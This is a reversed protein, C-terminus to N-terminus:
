IPDKVRFDFENALIGGDEIVAIRFEDNVQVRIKNLSYNHALFSFIRRFATRTINVGRIDLEVLSYNNCLSEVLFIIETDGINVSDSIDLKKIGHYQYISEVFKGFSRDSFYNGSLELIIKAEIDEGLMLNNVKNFLSSMANLGVDGMEIRNLMLSYFPLQHLLKPFFLQKFRVFFARSLSDVGEDDIANDSLNLHLISNYKAEEQKLLSSISFVGKSTLYNQSLDLKQIVCAVKIQECLGSIDNDTLKCNVLSLIQLKSHAPLANIFYIFMNDKLELNDLRVENCNLDQFYEFLDINIKPYEELYCKFCVQNNITNKWEPGSEDYLFQVVREKSALAFCREKGTETHYMMSKSLTVIKKAVTSSETRYWYLKFGELVVWRPHFNNTDRIRKMLYGYKIAEGNSIEKPKIFNLTKSSSHKYDRNTIPVTPLDEFKNTSDTMQYFMSREEYYIPIEEESSSSSSSSFIPKKTSSPVVSLIRTREKDSIAATASAIAPISHKRSLPRFQLDSVQFDSLVTEINETEATFEHILTQKKRHRTIILNSTSIMNPISKFEYEIPAVPVKIISAKTRKAYRLNESQQLLQSQQFFVLDHLFTNSSSVSVLQQKLAPIIEEASKLEFSPNKSLKQHLMRIAEEPALSSSTSISQTLTPFMLSSLEELETKQQPKQLKSKGLFESLNM